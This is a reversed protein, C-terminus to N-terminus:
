IEQVWKGLAAKGKVAEVLGYTLLGGYFVAGARVLVRTVGTPSPRGTMKELGAMIGETLLVTGASGAALLLFTPDTAAVLEDTSEYLIPM